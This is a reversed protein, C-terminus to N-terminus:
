HQFRINIWIIMAFDKEIFLSIFVVSVFIQKKENGDLSIILLRPNNASLIGEIHYMFFIWHITNRLLICKNPMNVICLFFFFIM